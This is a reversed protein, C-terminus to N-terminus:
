ARRISLVSLGRQELLDNVTSIDGDAPCSVLLYSSAVTRGDCEARLAASVAPGVLGAITVDYTTTGWESSSAM